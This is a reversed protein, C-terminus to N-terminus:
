SIGRIRCVQFKKNDLSFVLFDTGRCRTMSFSYDEEGLNSIFVFWEGGLRAKIGNATIRSLPSANSLYAVKAAKVISEFEKRDIGDGVSIQRFVGESGFSSPMVSPVVGPVIGPTFPDLSPPFVTKELEPGIPQNNSYSFNPVKTPLM